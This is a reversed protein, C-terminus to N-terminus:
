SCPEGARAAALDATVRSASDPDLGDGDAARELFPVAAPADDMACWLLQGKVYLADTQDPVLELARDLLDSALRVEGNGLWVIWAVRTLAAAGLQPPPNAEIIREYHPFAKQFDGAEFYREALRFRMFPLQAAVAPDDENSAIVAELTENSYASPDFEDGAAVGQMAGGQDQATRGALGITVAVAALLIAAGALM